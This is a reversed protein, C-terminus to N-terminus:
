ATMTYTADATADSQVLALSLVAQQVVAGAPLASLDFKLLIVNAMQNDPWTYTTLLTQASYNTANINLSTDQPSLQLQYTPSQAATDSTFSVVAVAAALSVFGSLSRIGLFM